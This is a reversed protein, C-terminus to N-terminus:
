NLSSFYDEWFYYLNLEIPDGFSVWQDVEFFKVSLGKDILHNISTGVYYENNVKKKSAILSQAADSFFSGRKFWFTGTVMQDLEPNESICEKEIISIVDGNPDVKCYAFNRYSGVPLSRLRFSFVIVDCGSNILSLLKEENYDLAYDCSSIMLSRDEAYSEKAILCTAAQGETKDEVSILEYPKDPIAAKIKSVLLDHLSDNKRYIYIYSKSNPLSNVCKELLSKNGIQIFPKSTKYGYDKFRKGEGAMPILSYDAFVHNITSDNKLFVNQWYIYQEYDEPTGLCIFTNIKFAYVDDGHDVCLNLLLSTYAEKNPMEIDSNFLESSLNRLYNLSKFYYIGCSAPENIRNSTFSEKEKLELMKNNNIRMYAYQTKGLSAAHFGVFFPVAADHGNAERLFREYDWKITFDCYSVIVPEDTKLRINAKLISFTPGKEHPDITYVSVNKSLTKLYETTKELNELNKNLILHFNDKYSFMEFVKEIMTQDGCNLLFKPLKYGKEKFRRSHGAM